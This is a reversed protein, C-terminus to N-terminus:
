DQLKKFQMFWAVEYVDPDNSKLKEKQEETLYPLLVDGGPQWNAPTFIKEEHKHVQQLAIISRKIENINRGVTMPYFLTSQIVNNPDIVYVGRVDRTTSVPHHIMGYKKAIEAKQDEVMPFHIEPTTKNKYTVKEMMKKWSQHSELNDTSVVLLEIGLEKFDDQMHALEILESSCVPTYDRPHCFIVKWKKGFDKPFHVPGNTSEAKFSPAKSGILPVNFKDSPQSWAQATVFILLFQLALLKMM